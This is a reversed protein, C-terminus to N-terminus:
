DESGDDDMDGLQRFCAEYGLLFLAAVKATQDSSLGETPVKTQFVFMMHDDRFHQYTPQGGTYGLEALEEDLLEELPDGSHMLTSEISESQWRDEMELSIFLGQDKTQLKYFADEASGDAKCVLVGDQVFVRDFVGAQEAEAKASEIAQGLDIGAAGM